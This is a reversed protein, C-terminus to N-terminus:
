KPTAGIWFLNFRPKNDRERDNMFETTSSAWGVTQAWPRSSIGDYHDIRTSPATKTELAQYFWQPAAKKKTVASPNNDKSAPAAQIALGAAAVAIVIMTTKM